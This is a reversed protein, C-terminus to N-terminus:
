DAAMLNETEPEIQPIASRLERILRAVDPNDEARTMKLSQLKSAAQWLADRLQQMLSSDHRM